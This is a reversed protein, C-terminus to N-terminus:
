SPSGGKATGPFSEMAPMEERCSSCGVAWFHLIVMKRRVDDPVRLSRGGLESLTVWPPLEGIRLPGRERAPAARAAVVIAALPPLPHAPWIGHRLDSKVTTM